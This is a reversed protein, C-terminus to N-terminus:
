QNTNKIKMIDILAEDFAQVFLPDFHKGSEQRIYEVAEETTWNRKRYARNSTLADFVDAIAVIRSYPHIEEGALGEPYGSGDWKEHHEYAMGAAARLLPHPRDGIIEKGYLTHRKMETWEEDSLKGPNLLINDPIGIKGVDHMPAANLIVDAEDLGMGAALAIAKGYQSMRTIHLGTENDKFEAARSLRKIIELRVDQVEAIRTRVQTELHRAQDYLNLQTEVRALVIPPSVPKILYDVAGVYFGESEDVVDERATVFIVPIGQTRVDSKLRRCVEFGDITPMMVDLLILDPPRKGMAIRLATIGDTVARVEYHEDLIGTLVDINEPVDDVILINAKNM